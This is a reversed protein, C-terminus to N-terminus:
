EAKEPAVEKPAPKPTPEAPRPAAPQPMPSRPVPLTSQQQIVEAPAVQVGRAASAARNRDDLLLGLRRAIMPAADEMARDAGEHQYVLHVPVTFHDTLAAEPLSAGGLALDVDVTWRYRGNVQVDFRAETDILLILSAGQTASTKNASDAKIAAEALIATRQRPQRHSAYSTLLAAQDVRIPNLNRRSVETLLRDVVVSPGSTLADSETSALVTGVAVVQREPSPVVPGAKLCAAFVVALALGFVAKPAFVPSM